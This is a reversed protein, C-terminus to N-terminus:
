AFPLNQGRAVHRKGALLRELEDGKSRFSGMPGQHVLHLVDSESPKEGSRGRRFGKRLRNGICKGTSKLFAMPGKFCFRM